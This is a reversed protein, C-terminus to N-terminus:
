SVLIFCILLTTMYSGMFHSIITPFVQPAAFRSSDRPANALAPTNGLTKAETTNPCYQILDGNCAVM